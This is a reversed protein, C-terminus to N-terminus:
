LHAAQALLTAADILQGAGSGHVSNLDIGALRAVADMVASFLVEIKGWIQDCLLNTVPDLTGALATAAPGRLYSASDALADALATGPGMNFRAALSVDTTFSQSASATFVSRVLKDLVIVLEPYFTLDNMTDVDLTDIHNGTAILDTKLTATVPTILIANSM